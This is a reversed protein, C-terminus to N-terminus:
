EKSELSSHGHRVQWYPPADLCSRHKLGHVHVLDDNGGERLGGDRLYQHRSDAYRLTQEGTMRIPANRREVKGHFALDTM